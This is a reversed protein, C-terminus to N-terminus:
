NHSFNLSSARQPCMSDRLTGVECFAPPPTHQRSGRSRATPGHCSPNRAPAAWHGHEPGVRCLTLTTGSTKSSTQTWGLACQCKDSRTPISVPCWQPSVEPSPSPLTQRARPLTVPVDLSHHGGGSRVSRGGSPAAHPRPRPHPPRLVGHSAQSQPGRAPGLAHHATAPAPSSRRVPCHRQGGSVTAAAASPGAEEGRLARHQRPGEAQRQAAADVVVEAHPQVRPQRELPGPAQAACRAGLADVGQRGDDLGAEAVCVARPLSGRRGGLLTGPHGLHRLGLHIPPCLEGTPLM